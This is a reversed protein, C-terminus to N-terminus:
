RFRALRLPRRLALAAPVPLRGAPVLRVAACPFQGGPQQRASAVALLGDENRQLYEAQLKFSRLNGNGHPAWKLIADAIWTRSQGTFADILLRAAATSM